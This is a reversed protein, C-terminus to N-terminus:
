PVAIDNTLVTLAGSSSFDGRFELRTASTTHLYLLRDEYGPRGDLDHSWEWVIVGTDLGGPEDDDATLGYREAMRDRIYNRSADEVLSGDYQFQMSDPFGNTTREGTSDRMVFVLSRIINGVRPHQITQQGSSVNFVSPTWYQTTGHAPPSTEQPSGSVSTERPQVWVELHARVRVDPVDPEPETDFVDGRAAVVYSLKYTQSANQNALAGLADRGSIQIPIRLRFRANGGDSVDSFSPLMKPDTVFSYAGYKEALYAHYGSVPGFLPNGNVDALSVSDLVRFPADEHAVASTTSGDGGTMEVDLVIAALYGIAPVDISSVTRASSGLTHTQDHFPEVRERSAAVFPVRARPKERKEGNEGNDQPRESVRQRHARSVLETAKAM